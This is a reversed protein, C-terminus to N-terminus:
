REEKASQGIRELANLLAELRDVELVGLMKAVEEHLMKTAAEVTKAGAGTLALVRKRADKADLERKIFGRKELSDLRRSITHAPLQMYEAIASPTMDSDRIHHMLFVEGLDLGYAERITPGIRHFM